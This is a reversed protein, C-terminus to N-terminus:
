HHKKRQPTKPREWCTPPPNNEGYSSYSKRLCVMEKENDESIPFARPPLEPATDDIPVNLSCDENDLDHDDYPVVYKTPPNPIDTEDPEAYYSSSDEDYHSTDSSNYSINVMTGQIRYQPTQYTPNPYRRPDYSQHLNNEPYVRTKIGCIDLCLDCGLMWWCAILLAGILSALVILVIWGACSNSGCWDHNSPMDPHLTPIVTPEGPVGGPLGGPLGGPVGGPVGGPPEVTPFVLNSLAISDSIDMVLNDTTIVLAVYSDNIGLPLNWTLSNYEYDFNLTYVPTEKQYNYYTINDNYLYINFRSNEVNTTWNLILEYENLTINDITVGTTNFVDSYWRDVWEIDRLIFRKPYHWYQSMYIPINWEYNYDDAITSLFVFDNISSKWGNDYMELQLHVTSTENWTVMHTQNVSWIDTSTPTLVSSLAM